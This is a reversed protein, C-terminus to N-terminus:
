GDSGRRYMALSLMRLDILTEVRLAFERVDELPKTLFDRAGDHWCPWFEDKLATLILVPTEVPGMIARLERFVQRGHKKPMLLDLIVLDPQYAQFVDVALEPDTLQQRDTFGLARLIVDLLNLNTQSDDISLIKAHPWATPKLIPAPM